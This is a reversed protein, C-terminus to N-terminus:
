ARRGGSGKKEPPADFGRGCSMCYAYVNLNMRHCWPCERMDIEQYPDSAAGITACRGIFLGRRQSLM